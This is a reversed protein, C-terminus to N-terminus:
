CLSGFYSILVFVQVEFVVCWFFFFLRTGAVLPAGSSRQGGRRNPKGCVCYHVLALKDPAALARPRAPPRSPAPLPGTLVGARAGGPRASRRAAAKSAARPSAEGAQSSGGESQGERGASLLYRQHRASSVGPVASPSLLSTVAAVQPQGPFPPRRAPSGGPARPLHGQVRASGQSKRTHTNINTSKAPPPCLCGGARAM